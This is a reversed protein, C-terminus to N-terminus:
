RSRRQTALDGCSPEGPASNGRRKGRAALEEALQAVIGWRGAEAALMLARALSTEVVGVLVDPPLRRDSGQGEISDSASDDLSDDVVGRIVCKPASDPADASDEVTRNPASEQQHTSPSSPEIGVKPV